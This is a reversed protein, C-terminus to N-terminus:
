RATIESLGVLRQLQEGGPELLRGLALRAIGGGHREGGDVGVAQGVGAHHQELAEVLAAENEIGIRLALLAALEGAVGLSRQHKM